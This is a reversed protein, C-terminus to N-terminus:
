KNKYIVLYARNVNKGLKKNTLLTYLIPNTLYNFILKLNYVIRRVLRIRPDFLFLKFLFENVNINGAYLIQHNFDNLINTIEYPTPLGLKLHENLYTIDLNKSKLWNAIKIEHQIHENTGIPFSLIVKKRAARILNNIFTLREKKPIHELVDISCVIDFSNQRFPLKNKKILVDSREASEKLNAVIIKSPKCFQSLQNLEGGIDLVSFSDEILSGVQRHREYIDYPLFLKNTLFPNSNASQM